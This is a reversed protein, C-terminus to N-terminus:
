KIPLCFAGDDERQWLLVGIVSSIVMLVTLADLVVDGNAAVNRARSGSPYQRLVIVWDLVAATKSM